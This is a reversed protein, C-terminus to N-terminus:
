NFRAARKAEREALIADHEAISRFYAYDNAIGRVDSTHQVGDRDWVIVYHVSKKNIKVITAKQWHSGYRKSPGNTDVMLTTGVFFRMDRIRIAERMNQIDQKIHYDNRSPYEEKPEAYATLIEAIHHQCITLTEMLSLMNKHFKVGNEINLNDGSGGFSPASIRHIKIGDATQNIEVNVDSGFHSRDDSNYFAFSFRPEKGYFTDRSVSKLAFGIGYAQFFESFTRLNQEKIELRRLGLQNETKAYEALELELEEIRQEYTKNM